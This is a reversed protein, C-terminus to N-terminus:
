KVPINSTSTPTPTPTNHDVNYGEARMRNIQDANGSRNLELMIKAIIGLFITAGVAEGIKIFMGMVFSRRKMAQYEPLPVAMPRRHSESELSQQPGEAM